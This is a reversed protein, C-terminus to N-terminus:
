LPEGVLKELEYLAMRAEVAARLRETRIAVLQREAELAADFDVRGTEFGARAADRTARTQPLLTGDILRVTERSSTYDALAAGIEGDLRSLTAARRADAAALMSEAERERARRPAQQLPIMVEFMLDWSETGGRPRNNTLGIAYDPYRDAWVGEREARAADIARSDATVAPNNARARTILQAPDLAAPLPQPEDPEALPADPSRALLANLAAVAGRRRSEIGVQALRERTIERQARLVAQQPLLGQRYRVLAAEELGGLLALSEQLLDAERDAAYYRLWAGKVTNALELWAGDLAATAQAARAESAEKQLDLKGWGPLNQVIRYRTEGVEGPVISTGGGRMTNTADMLEIQFRPDPLTGAAGVRERAAAAEHREAAFAPNAQRALALLSAVDRGPLDAPESAWAPAAALLACLIAARLRTRVEGKIPSNM